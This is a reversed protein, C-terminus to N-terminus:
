EVWSEPLLPFGSCLTLDDDNWNDLQLTFEGTLLQDQTELDNYRSMHTIGTDLTIGELEHLISEIRKTQMIIESKATQHIQILLEILNASNATILDRETESGTLQRSSIYQMARVSVGLGLGFIEAATSFCGAAEAKLLPHDRTFSSITNLLSGAETLFDGLVNENLTWNEFPGHPFLMHIIITLYTAKVVAELSSSSSAEQMTRLAERLCLRIRSCLSEKDLGNGALQRLQHLHRTQSPIIDHSGTTNQYWHALTYVHGLTATLQSLPWLLRAVTAQARITSVHGSAIDLVTMRSSFEDVPPFSVPIDALKQPPSHGDETQMLIWLRLSSTVSDMNHLVEHEVDIVQFGNIKVRYPATNPATSLRSRLDNIIQAALQIYSTARRAQSRHLHHWGLLLLTQATSIDSVNVALACVQSMSWEALAASEVLLSPRNSEPVHTALTAMAESLLIALLAQDYVGDKISQLLLTKSILVSFPHISFWIDILQMMWSSDISTLPSNVSVGMDIEFMTATTDQALCTTFFRPRHEAPGFGLHGFRLLLMELM